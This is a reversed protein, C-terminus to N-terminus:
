MWDRTRMNMWCVCASTHETSPATSLAARSASVSRSSCFASCFGMTSPCPLLHQNFGTRFWGPPTLSSKGTCIVFASMGCFSCFCKLHAFCQHAPALQYWPSLWTRPDRELEVKPMMSTSSISRPLLRCWVFPCIGCILTAKNELVGRPTLMLLGPFVQTACLMPTKPSTLIFDFATPTYEQALPSKQPLLCDPPCRVQVQVGAKGSELPHDQCLM